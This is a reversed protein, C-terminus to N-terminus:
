SEPAVLWLLLMEHVAEFGLRRYLRNTMANSSQTTLMVEDVGPRARETGAVAATLAAAYGNGRLEPPTFVGGIRVTGFCPTSVILQAVAEGAVRWVWLRGENTAREVQARRAALEADADDDDDDDLGVEAGFAVAWRAANDLHAADAAAVSGPVDPPHLEGLRYVRLIEISEFGGGTRESWHGAVTTADRVEGDLRIRGAAPLAGAIAAHAGDRLATLTYGPGWEVAGGLTGTESAVRVVRGDDGREIVNAALNCGIPDAAFLDACREVATAGAQLLETTM